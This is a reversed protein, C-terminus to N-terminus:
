TEMKIVEVKYDIIESANIEGKQIKETDKTKM